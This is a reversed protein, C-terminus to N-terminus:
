CLGELVAFEQLFGDRVEVIECDVDTPSSTSTGEGEVMGEEEEEMAEEEEEAMTTDGKLDADRLLELARQCQELVAELTRRRVRVQDEESAEAPSRAAGGDGGASGPSAAAEADM